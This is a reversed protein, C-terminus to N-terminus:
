TTNWLRAQAKEKSAKNVSIFQSCLSFGIKLMGAPILMSYAVM